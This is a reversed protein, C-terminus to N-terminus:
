PLTIFKIVKKYLIGEQKWQYLFYLFGGLFALTIILFLTARKKHNVTYILQVSCLTGRLHLVFECPTFSSNTM